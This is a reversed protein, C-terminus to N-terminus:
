GVELPTWRARQRDDREADAEGDYDMAAPEDSLTAAVALLNVNLVMRQGDEDSRAAGLYCGCVSCLLFDARRLGFRYRILASRSTLRISGEPDSTYRPRHRRCFDCACRRLPWDTTPRGTRYDLIQAGCHCSGAYATM